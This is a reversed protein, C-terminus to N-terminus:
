LELTMRTTCYFHGTKGMAKDILQFNNKQYLGIAETMNPFTELYMLKYNNAKAFGICREMLDQGISMGRADKSLFLRQLECVSHDEGLLHAVGCGGVLEDNLYVVYYISKGRQYGDYMRDTAEDTFVTGDVNNGQETLVTRIVVALGKNDTQSIKKITYNM